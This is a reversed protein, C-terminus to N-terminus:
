RDDPSQKGAYDLHDGINKGIWLYKFNKGQLTKFGAALGYLIWALMFLLPITMSALGVWFIPPPADQYQQPNQILPIWTLAYFLGWVVWIVMTLIMGMLQYVAAQLGQRSAYPARDKQTIWILVGVLLGPGFVIVAAHSIAAMLTENGAPQHDM